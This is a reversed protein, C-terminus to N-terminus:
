RTRGPIVSVVDTLILVGGGLGGLGTGGKGGGKQVLQELKKGSRTIITAHLTSWSDRMEIPQYATGSPKRGDM